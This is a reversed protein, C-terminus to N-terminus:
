FPHDLKYTLALTKLDDAVKSILPIGQQMREGHLKFEPEGPILVPEAADIPQAQKFRKIWLDMRKGFEATDMFGDVDMAGTFHGIGKGPLDPLVPLFAVFPPVWPGFNAGSLVGSLIDVLAGLGYGKHSGHDKDSGLPLLYGGEKLGGPNTTSRGDKTELWGSPVPIQKREAIELKGNAAASSAMDLVFPLEVGAPIAYCIPNTGLMREKSNAPAVLPSANTMAMGIYGHELAKMAHYAAIGFHNSNGVAGFSSGYLKTKELVIEMSRPAVVLGLGADGDLTFVSKKDRILRINPKTNIRGKEFLRVYGSLRAVGHSDIGRLDAQILVDTALDADKESCGLAIFVSHTFLSLDNKSINLFEPQNM